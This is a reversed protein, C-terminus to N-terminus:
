IGPEVDETVQQPSGGAEGHGLIEALRHGLRESHCARLQAARWRVCRHRVNIVHKSEGAFEKSGRQQRRRGEGLGGAGLEGIEAPDEGPIPALIRVRPAESELDAAM